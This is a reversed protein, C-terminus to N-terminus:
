NFIIDEISIKYYKSFKVKIEDRPMRKGIEYMALASLSINLDNAVLERSKEGRLKLLKKGIKEKNLLDGGIQLLLRNWMNRCCM